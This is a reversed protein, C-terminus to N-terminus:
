STIRHVAMSLFSAATTGGGTHIIQMELFDGAGGMFVLGKCLLVDVPAFYKRRAWTGGNKAVLLEGVSWAGGGAVEVRGVVYYIGTKGAPVTIRQANTGLNILGDTDYVETDFTITTAVGDAINQSSLIRAAKAVPRKLAALRNVDQPTTLKAAIDDALNKTSVDTVVEDIYPYRFAQSNTTGGM